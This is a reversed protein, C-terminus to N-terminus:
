ISQVAKIFLYVNKIRCEMAKGVCRITDVESMIGPGGKMRKTSEM